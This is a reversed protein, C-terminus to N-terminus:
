AKVAAALHAVKACGIEILALGSSAARALAALPQRVITAQWTAPLHSSAGVGGFANDSLRNKYKM